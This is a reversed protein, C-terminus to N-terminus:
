KIPSTIEVIAKKLKLFPIYFRYISSWDNHMAQKNLDFDILKAAKLEKISKRITYKKIGTAKTIEAFPLKCSGYDKNSPDFNAKRNICLFVKVTTPKLKLLRPLIYHPIRSDWEISAKCKTINDCELCDKSPCEADDIFNFNIKGRDIKIAPTKRIGTEM